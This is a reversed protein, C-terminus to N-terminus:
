RPSHILGYLAMHPGMYSEIIGYLAMYPRMPGYLAMHPEILGYLLAMNPGLAGLAMSLGYLAM